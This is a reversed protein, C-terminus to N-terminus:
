FIWFIFCCIKYSPLFFSLPVLILFFFQCILGASLCGAFGLQQFLLSFSSASSMILSLLFNVLSFSGRLLGIFSHLLSHFPRFLPIGSCFELVSLIVVFLYIFLVLSLSFIRFSRSLISTPTPPFLLSLDWGFSLFDFHVLNGLKILM